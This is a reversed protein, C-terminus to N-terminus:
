AGTERLKSRVATLIRGLVNQKEGKGKCSSCRCEGWFNDHWTNGEVLEEEGTALLQSRLPERSFKNEILQFMVNVKIEEWDPRLRVTRGLAKAQAATGSRMMNQLTPDTTKAAQFAHEVSPYATGDIGLVPAPYFNSLFRHVGRFSSIM